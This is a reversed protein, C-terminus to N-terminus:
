FVDELADLFEQVEGWAVQVDAPLDGYRERIVTAAAVVDKGEKIARQVRGVVKFGTVVRSLLPIKM